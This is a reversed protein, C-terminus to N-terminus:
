ILPPLVTFGMATALKRQKFDFSVFERAGLLRASAVHLTDLSRVGIVAGHRSAISAAERFALQWSHPARRLRGRRIDALVNGWAAAVEASTLRGNFIWRMMGSRLELRHLATFGLQRSLAGIATTAAASNRDLLYYSMLASTDAYAPM